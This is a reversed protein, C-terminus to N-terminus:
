DGEQDTIDNFIQERIEEIRNIMSNIWPENNKLDNGQLNTKYSYLSSYLGWLDNNTVQLYYQKKM